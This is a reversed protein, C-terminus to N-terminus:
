FARVGGVVDPLELAPLITCASPAALASAVAPTSRMEAFRHLRGERRELDGLIGVKLRTDLTDQDGQTWDGHEAWPLVSEQMLQGGHTSASAGQLERALVLAADGGREMHQQLEPNSLALDALRPVNLPPDVWTNFLLVSRRYITSEDCAGGAKKRKRTWLVNNSGGLAPDLYALTPRPVAHMRDGVFRLLRGTVAPVVLLRDIARIPAATTPPLANEERDPLPPRGGDDLILTPGRVQEGVELYLVHGFEPWRLRGRTRALVEDADRHADLNMWEDRWWYEAFPHTDGCKELCHLIVQELVSAPERRRDLLVHGGGLAAAARDLRACLNTPM